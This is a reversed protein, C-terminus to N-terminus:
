EKPIRYPLVLYPLVLYSSIYFSSRPLPRYLVFLLTPSFCSSFCPLLLIFLFALFFSLCLSRSEHNTFRSEHSFVSMLSWSGHITFRSDHFFVIVVLNDCRLPAPPDCEYHFCQPFFTFHPLFAKKISYRSLCVLYISFYSSFRPLLLISLFALFFTM